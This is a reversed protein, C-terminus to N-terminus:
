ELLFSHYYAAVERLLFYPEKALRRSMRAPVTFARIGARDFLMRAAARRFWRPRRLGPANRILVAAVLAALACRGARSAPWGVWDGLTEFRGRVAEGALSVVVFLAIALGATRLLDRRVPLSPLRM